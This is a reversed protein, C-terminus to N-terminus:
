CVLMCCFLCRCVLVHGGSNISIYNCLCLWTQQGIEMSGQIGGLLVRTVWLCWRVEEKAGRRWLSKEVKVYAFIKKTVEQSVADSWPKGWWHSVHNQLTDCREGRLCRCLCMDEEQSLFLWHVRMALTFDGTGGPEVQLMICPGLTPRTQCIRSLHCQLMFLVTLLNYWPQKRFLKQFFGKRM